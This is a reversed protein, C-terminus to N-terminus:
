LGLFLICLASAAIVGGALAHDWRELARLPLRRFGSLGALTLLAMAAVTIMGFVLATLAALGFRGRSAPLVFLPILPECPGLVFVAFLTWFAAASEKRRAAPHRHSRDGGAHVHVSGDHRHPELGRARRVGRRIGWVAYALGFAFLAWAALSGRGSEFRELHALGVGLGLGLGGLLLSSGVHGCGCLTAVLVARRRSWRRARALMVFPLYHDPGLATHVLAVGVAGAVLSWGFGDM